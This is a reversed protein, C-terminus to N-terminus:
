TVIGGGVGKRSLPKFNNVKPVRKPVRKNPRIKGGKAGIVATICWRLSANYPHSSGLRYDQLRKAREGAEKSAVDKQEPDKM